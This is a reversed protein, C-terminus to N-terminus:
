GAWGIDILVLFPDENRERKKIVLYLVKRHAKLM